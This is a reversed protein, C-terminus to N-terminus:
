SFSMEHLVDKYSSVNVSWNVGNVSTTEWAGRAIKMKVKYLKEKVNKMNVDTTFDIM